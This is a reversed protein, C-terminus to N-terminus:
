SIQCRMTGQEHCHQHMRVPSHPDPADKRCSLFLSVLREQAELLAALPAPAIPFHVLRSHSSLCRHPSCRLHLSRMTRLKTNFHGKQVGVKAAQQIFTQM